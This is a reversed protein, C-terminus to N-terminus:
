CTKLDFLDNKIDQNRILRLHGSNIIEDYTNTNPIFDYFPLITYYNYYFTDVNLQEGEYFKLIRFGSNQQRQRIEKWSILSEKDRELDIILGELYKREIKIEELDERYNEVWFSLTIGLFIIILELIYKGYKKFDM